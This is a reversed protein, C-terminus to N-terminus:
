DTLKVIVRGRQKGELIRDIGVSLSNLTCETAVSDLCDLKWAGGLKTWIETRLPMETAVSDIGCLAIGRLIFPFVSLHLDPSAVMGCCTVVGHPKTTRIATSLITGGVTDVVGAWRVKLMPRASPDDVEQRAIVTKAGLQELFAAESSKGTAAAVDYGAKALLGVAISGVGGTAGTVLVEGQAPTVGCFELRHVCLAATFGATGYIMCERLTLGNPRRVIWAAPVRIYQAFGGSTEMGLDYGTVLVEDGPSLGAASSEEVVGAADIGPTHPYTKTVGKNGTASLADKYNLSSLHVRILVEGVPLDDVTRTAIQQTFRNDRDQTVVM